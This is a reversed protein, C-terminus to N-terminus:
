DVHTMMSWNLSGEAADILCRAHAASQAGGVASVSTKMNYKDSITTIEEHDNKCAYKTAECQNPGTNYVM